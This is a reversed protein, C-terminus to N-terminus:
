NMSMESALKEYVPVIVVSQAMQGILASYVLWLLSLWRVLWLLTSWDCCVSDDSWDSFLLGIVASQCRVLWLLTSWDCCVSDDSWDSFLLGIVVSQAM